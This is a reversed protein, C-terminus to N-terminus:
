ESELSGCCTEGGKDRINNGSLNIACAIVEVRMLETIDILHLIMKM